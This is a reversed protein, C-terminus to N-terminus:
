DPLCTSTECIDIEPELDGIADLDLIDYYEMEAELSGVASMRQSGVWHTSTFDFLGGITIGTPYVYDADDDDDLMSILQTSIDQIAQTTSQPQLQDSESAAEAVPDEEVTPVEAMIVDGGSPVTPTSPLPGSTSAGTVAKTKEALVGFRRKRLSRPTNDRLYEDRIHLKYEALNVLTKKTLRTRLKTLILGFHSFLRECSASNPCISLLHLALQTLPGPPVDPINIEQYVQIPDPSEHKKKAKTSLRECTGQLLKFPPTGDFYAHIEDSLSEPPAEGFFRTWLHSLLNNISAFSVIGPDRRFPAVKIFPNLIVAAIFVDQDSKKWRLEISNLVAECVPTNTPDETIMKKFEMSLAAFTLLVKDLRCHASQTVNAAIALPSLHHKIRTLNGWFIPDRILKVMKKAKERASRDNQPVVIRDESARLEDAAVIFELASRLDLLRRYALYFATWRTAVPRIVSVANKNQALCAERILGMVATKSRLWTILENAQSAAVLFATDNAKFYDGVILNVQHAYCDPTVLDPRRERLLRRAKRSEGSADTTFAIVRVKWEKDLKDLVELMQDLLKEATKRETTTDNVQVTFIQRKTSIMFAILHQFNEGTWGDCQVTALGGFAKAMIGARVDKLARPLIRNTLVKRSPLRADPIYKQCFSVFEPNTVWSLPFDGSATIRALFTEFTKQSEEDWPEQPERLNSLSSQSSLMRKGLTGKRAKSAHNGVAPSRSRSQSSSTASLAPSPSPPIGPSDTQM